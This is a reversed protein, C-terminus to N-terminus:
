VKVNNHVVAAWEKQRSEHILATRRLKTHILQAQMSPPKGSVSGSVCVYGLLVIM